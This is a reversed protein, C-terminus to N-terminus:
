SHFDLFFRSFTVPSTEQMQHSCCVSYAASLTAELCYGSWRPHVPNTTNHAFNRAGPILVSTSGHLQRVASRLEEGASRLFAVARRRGSLHVDSRCGSPL